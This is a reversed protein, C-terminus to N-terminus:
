EVQHFRFFNIDFLFIFYFVMLLTRLINAKIGSPPEFILKNSSRVLTSPLAPNIDSTM